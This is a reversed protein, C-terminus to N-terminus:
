EPKFKVVPTVSFMEGDKLPEYRLERFVRRVCRVMAEDDLAVTPLNIEYITGDAHMVVEVDISGALEPNNDLGKAYCQRFHTKGAEFTALFAKKAQSRAESSMGAGGTMLAPGLEVVGAEPPPAEPEPEAPLPDMDMDGSDDPPPPPPAKPEPCGTAVGLLALLGGLTAVQGLRPANKFM